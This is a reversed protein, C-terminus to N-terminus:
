RSDESPSPAKIRERVTQALDAAYKRAAKGPTPRPWDGVHRPREPCHEEHKWGAVMSRMDEHCYRCPHEHNSM